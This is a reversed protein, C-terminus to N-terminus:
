EYIEVQFCSIGFKPIMIALGPSSGLIGKGCALLNVVGGGSSRITPFVTIVELDSKPLKNRTENYM